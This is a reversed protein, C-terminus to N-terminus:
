AIGRAALLAYVAPVMAPQTALATFGTAIGLQPLVESLIVDNLKGAAEMGAKFVCFGAFSNQDVGPPFSFPAAAGAGPATISGPGPSGAPGAGDGMAAPDITIAVTGPGAATVTVGASQSALAQQGYAMYAADHATKWANFWALGQPPVEVAQGKKLKDFQDDTLGIRAGAAITAQDAAYTLRAMIAAESSDTMSAQAATVPSTPVAGGSSGALLEAKIKTVVAPGVGKRQRWKGDANKSKSESHIRADWPLGEVDLEVTPLATAPTAGTSVTLASTGTFVATADRLPQQQEGTSLNVPEGGFYRAVEATVEEFSADHDFIFALKASM